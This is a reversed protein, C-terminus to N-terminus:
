RAPSLSSFFLGALERDWDTMIAEPRLWENARVCSVDSVHALSSL